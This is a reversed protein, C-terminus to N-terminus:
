FSLTVAQQNIYNSSISALALRTLNRTSTWIIFHCTNNTKKYFSKMEMSSLKSFAFPYLSFTKFLLEDCLSSHKLLFTLKSPFAHFHWICKYNQRWIESQLNKCIHKEANPQKDGKKKKKTLWMDGKIINSVKLWITIVLTSYVMEFLMVKRVNAWCVPRYVCVYLM